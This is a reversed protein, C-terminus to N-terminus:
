LEVARDLVPDRGEQLDLVTTRIEIDPNIGVGEFAAGDPFTNRVTGVRLSMGTGLDQYSPQGSSGGTMEGVVIARGNDKFPMVFDEAASFCAGDVLLVIRGRFADPNPELFTAPTVLSRSPLGRARDAGVHSTTEERWLRYPRDMLRWLLRMPTNGGDNGRVDIILLAENNVEGVLRLAEEEFETESFSRTILVAINSRIWTLNPALPVSAFDSSRLIEVATGNELNLRFSVPFLYRRYFFGNAAATESSASLLPRRCQFFHDIEKGDIERIVDGIKVRPHLSATVAWVGEIPRAFFGFRQGCEQWLWQDDFSTHGNRLTAVFRLTAIDFLYRGRDPMAEDLYSAFADDLRYNPIAEWHVFYTEVAARLKATIFAKREATLEMKRNWSM